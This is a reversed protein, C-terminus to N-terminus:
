TIREAQQRLMMDVKNKGCNWAARYSNCVVPVGALTLMEGDVAVMHNPFVTIVHGRYQSASAGPNKSYGGDILPAM